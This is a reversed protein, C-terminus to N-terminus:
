NMATKEAKKESIFMSKIWAIFREFINSEITKILEANTM